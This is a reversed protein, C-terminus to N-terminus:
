ENKFCLNIIHSTKEEKAILRAGKRSADCTSEALRTLTTLAEDLTGCVFYGRITPIEFTAM